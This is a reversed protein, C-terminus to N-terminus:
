ISHRLRSSRRREKVAPLSPRSFSIGTRCLSDLNKRETSKLTWQEKGDEIQQEYPLTLMWASWKRVVGIAVDKPVEFWEVHSKLCGPCKKEIKRHRALELHVLAEVRSIHPVHQSDVMKEDEKKVPDPFHIEMSKKCQKNWQKLRCPVNVSRGIKLHGFNPPQWFIYMSGEYKLDSQSLPKMLLKALEESTKGSLTKSVYPSFQQIPNVPLIEEQDLRGVTHQLVSIPTPKSLAARVLLSIWRFLAWLRKNKMSFMAEHGKIKSVEEFEEKWFQLEKLAVKQHSACFVVEILHRLVSHLASPKVTALAQLQASISGVPHTLKCRTGRATWSACRRGDEELHQLM